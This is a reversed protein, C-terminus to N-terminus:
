LTAADTVVPDGAPPAALPKTTRRGRPTRETVEGALTPDSEPDFRRGDAYRTITADPHKRQAFAADTVTYRQGDPYEILVRNRKDNM